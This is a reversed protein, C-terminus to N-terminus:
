EFVLISMSSFKSSKGWGDQEWPMAYDDGGSSYREDYDRRYEEFSLPREYNSYHHREHYLQNIAHRAAHRAQAVMNSVNEYYNNFPPPGGGAYPDFPNYWNNNM